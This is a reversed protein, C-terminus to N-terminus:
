CYLGALDIKYLIWYVFIPMSQNICRCSIEKIHLRHIINIFSGNIM